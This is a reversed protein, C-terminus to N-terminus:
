QNGGGLFFFIYFFFLTGCQKSSTVTHTRSTGAFFKCVAAAAATPAVRGTSPADTRHRVRDYPSCRTIIIIIIPVPQRRRRRRRLFNDATFACAAETQYYPIANAGLPVDDDGGCHKEM